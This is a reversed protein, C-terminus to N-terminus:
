AVPSIALDSGLDKEHDGEDLQVCGDCLTCARVIAPSNLEWM